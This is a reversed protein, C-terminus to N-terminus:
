KKKATKAKRAPKRKKLTKNLMDGADGIGNLYVEWIALNQEALELLRDEMHLSKAHKALNKWGLDSHIEDAENHIKFFKLDADTMHPFLKKWRLREIGLWGHNKFTGKGYGKLNTRESVVNALLGELWHCNGMVGMWANWALQTTPLPKANRLKARSMGAKVGVNELMLWHPLGDGFEDDAILEETCAGLIRMRTEWDPTNTAVKLKLVSNRQRTNLRHQECFMYARGQNYPENIYRVRNCFNDLINDLDRIFGKAKTDRPM